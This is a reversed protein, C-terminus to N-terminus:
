KNRIVNSTCALEVVPPQIRVYFSEATVCDVVALSAVANGAADALYATLTDGSLVAPHLARAIAAREKVIKVKAPLRIFGTATLAAILTLFAAMLINPNTRM